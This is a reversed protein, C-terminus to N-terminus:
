DEIFGSRRRTPLSLFAPLPADPLEKVPKEKLYEIALDLGTRIADLEDRLNQLLTKLETMEQETMAM